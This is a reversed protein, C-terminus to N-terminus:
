GIIRLVTVAFVVILLILAMQVLIDVWDIEFDKYYEHKPIYSM